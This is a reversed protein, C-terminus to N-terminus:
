LNQSNFHIPTSFLCAMLISAHKPYLNSSKIRTFYKEFCCFLWIMRLMGVLQPVNTFQQSQIETVRDPWWMKCAGHRALPFCAALPAYERETDFIFASCLGSIFWLPLYYNQISDTAKICRNLGSPFADIM